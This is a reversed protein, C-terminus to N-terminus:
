TFNKNFVPASGEPYVSVIQGRDSTPVFVMDQHGQEGAKRQFDDAMQGIKLGHIFGDLGPM